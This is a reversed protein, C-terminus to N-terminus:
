NIQLKQRKKTAMHMQKCNSNVQSIPGHIRVSFVPCKPGSLYWDVYGATASLRLM